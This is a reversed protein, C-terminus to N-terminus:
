KILDLNNSLFNIYNGLKTQNMSKDKTPTTTQIPDFSASSVVNTTLEIIENLESSINLSLNSALTSQPFTSVSKYQSSNFEYTQITSLEPQYLSKKLELASLNTQNVSSNQQFASLDTKNVSSGTQKLEKHITNKNVNNHKTTGKRNVTKIESKAKTKATVTSSTQKQNLRIDLYDIYTGHKTQNMSKEKAPTTTQIPDFSASSVVNTNLEIIENLESSFNLSLNSAFILEPFTPVSKNQTSNFEYTQISSPEQKIDSPDTHITSTEPQVSNNQNASIEKEKKSVLSKDLFDIYTAYNKSLQPKITILQPEIISLETHIVRHELQVSKKNASTSSSSDMSNTKVSKKKLFFDIYSGYRKNRDAIRKTQSSIIIQACLFLALCCIKLKIKTKM